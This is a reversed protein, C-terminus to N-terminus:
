ASARTDQLQDAFLLSLTEVHNEVFYNGLDNINFNEFMLTKPLTGFDKELRRIIKLVLYSDIGFERFPTFADFPHDAPDLPPDVADFSELVIGRLYLETLEQLLDRDIM